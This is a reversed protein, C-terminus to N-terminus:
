AALAVSYASSCCRDVEQGGVLGVGKIGGDYVGRVRLKITKAVDLPAQTGKSVM